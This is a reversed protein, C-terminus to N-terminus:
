ARVRALIWDWNLPRRAREELSPFQPLEVPKRVRKPKMPLGKRVNMEGSAYRAMLRRVSTRCEGIERCCDKITYGQERLAHIQRALADLEYPQRHKRQPKAKTNM